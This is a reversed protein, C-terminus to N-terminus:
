QESSIGAIVVNVKSVAIGTMNQVVSKVNNQVAKAVESAKASSTIIIDIDIFVSDSPIKVRIPPILKNKSSTSNVVALKNTATLAVGKIEAAATEAIRIIANASVKLTGTTKVDNKNM